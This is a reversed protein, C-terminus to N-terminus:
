GKLWLKEMANELRGIRAQMDGVIESKTFSLDEALSAIREDLTEPPTGDFGHELSWELRLRIEANLSRGSAKAAETLAAKLEEPLRMSIPDPRLKTDSPKM